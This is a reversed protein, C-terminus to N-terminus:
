PSAYDRHRLYSAYIFRIHVLYLSYVFCIQKIHTESRLRPRPRPRIQTHGNPRFDSVTPNQLPESCGCATSQMLSYRCWPADMVPRLASVMQKTHRKRIPTSFLPRAVMSHSEKANTFSQSYVLPGLASDNCFTTHRCTRQICLSPM